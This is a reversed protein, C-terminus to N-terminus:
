KMEDVWRQDNLAPPIRGAAIAQDHILESMECLWRFREEVPLESWEKGQANRAGEFTVAAWPDSTNKAESSM